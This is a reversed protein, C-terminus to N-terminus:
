YYPPFGPGSLINAASEIAGMGPEYPRLIFTYSYSDFPILYQPHPRAGWSDDGGVGMQKYDLHVAVFDRKKLQNPHMSGRFPQTLDENTYPLASFGIHPMGVALLGKGESNLFAVWRTDTRYGYEQPSVYPVVMDDVTTKYEGIFASTKRDCYNEHPGRGYWVIDRFTGPVHLSMGFRPIEPQQIDGPILRNYIMVEGGVLVTYKIEHNCGVVPLKFMTYVEVAGNALKRSKFDMLKMDQGAKRWVACRKDMENGFDNDTPARWFDPRPARLILPTGKYEYGTMLGTVKDFTVSFNSGTIILEGDKMKGSSKTKVQLTPMQEKKLYDPQTATGLPMPFQESAVIHGLPVLPQQRNTKAYINLFYEVGQMPQIKPLILTFEKSQRPAVGPERIVGSAIPKTGGVLEWHIDVFDLPIFDYKNRISIKGAALDVPKFGIYQYVKKVEWLAPHPIRDPCVLGNCCFNRDTPWEKPGFDGGFAWFKVGNDDKQAFGQDVWDWIFGGQLQDYKEIVDWYDQLNGTSNGMSHSYECLILPRTQKVKVYSEIEEITDYMPCVIDTNPGTGAREYHVPRSYDRKRTWDAMATFNVGDGAENGLSWIIVSAHNKDREVMRMMRDLHAEQWDPNKALSREKYGMGHSEINAEDILYLGYEDCLEYWRPDNPYHCTRVSNINFQKMLEIDHRMSEESVVHGTYEDHEHRNVGKILIPVGNVLLRGDKIEVTRFGVKCGVVEVTQGKPGSLQLIMHYLHPTEATWKQPTPVTKEFVVNFKEKNDIDVLTEAEVVTEGKDNLLMMKLTHKPSHRKGADNKLEVEVSLKGNQYNEDPVAHVFFDRIRILPTSYLFVDREIGSIRWFDQCELYNGDSWRYVELAVNNEGDRLYRTIDWEAPTKSDESYGVKNGNIWTYFASKVAGFHIFVQRGKWEAPITFSRKYSGVPNRDHPIYPPNPNESWEYDSNVYIPFGYGSLEWNAPVNIEDWGSVDYSDKYFDMPRDGPKEVWHFKWKGNLSYYFPSTKKMDKVASPIDAYPIYTVHPEEKNQNFMKPNEWDEAAAGLMAGGTLFIILVALIPIYTMKM